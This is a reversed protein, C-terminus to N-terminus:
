KFPRPKNYSPNTIAPNIQTSQLLTESSFISLMSARQRRLLEVDANPFRQARAQDDEAQQQSSESGSITGSLHQPAQVISLDPGDSNTTKSRDFYNKSSDFSKSKDFNCKQLVFTHTNYKQLLIFLELKMKIQFFLDTPTM